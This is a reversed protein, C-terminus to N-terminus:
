IQTVSDTQEECLDESNEESLRGLEDQVLNQSQDDCLSDMYDTSYKDLLDDSVSDINDVSQDLISSVSGTNLYEKPLNDPQRVEPTRQRHAKARRVWFVLCSTMTAMVVIAMM